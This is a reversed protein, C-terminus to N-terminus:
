VQPKIKTRDRHTTTQRLSGVEGYLNGLTKVSHPVPVLPDVQRGPSQHDLAVIVLLKNGVIIEDKAQTAIVIPMMPRLSSSIFSVTRSRHIVRTGGGGSADGSVM